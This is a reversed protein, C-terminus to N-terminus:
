PLTITKSNIENKKIKLRITISTSIHPKNKREKKKNNINEGQIKNYFLLNNTRSRNTLTLIFSIPNEKRFSVGYNGSSM